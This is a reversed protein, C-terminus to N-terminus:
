QCSEGEDLSLMGDNETSKLQMEIGFLLNLFARNVNLGTRLDCFGVPVEYTKEEDFAVNEM